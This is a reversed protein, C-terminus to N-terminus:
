TLAGPRVFFEWRFKRADADPRVASLVVSTTSRTLTADVGAEGSAVSNTGVSTAAGNDSGTGANNQAVFRYRFYSTRKNTTNTVTCLAEVCVGENAPIAYTELATTGASSFSSEGVFSRWHERTQGSDQRKIRTSSFDLYHTASSSQLKLVIQAAAQVWVAGNTELARLFLGGNAVQHAIETWTGLIGRVLARVAGGVVFEFPTSDNGVPTGLDARTKGAFHTGPTQGPGGGFTLDRGAGSPSQAPQIRMPADTACLFTTGDSSCTLTKTNATVSTQPEQMRVVQTGNESVITARGLAHDILADRGSNVEIGVNGGKTNLDLTRNPSELAIKGASPTVAMADVGAVQYRVADGEAGVDILVDNGSDLHVDQAGQSAVKAVAAEPGVFATALAAGADNRLLLKSATPSSSILALLSARFREFIHAAGRGGAESPRELHAPTVGLGNDLVVGTSNKTVEFVLVRTGDPTTLQIRWRGAIPDPEVQVNQAVTSDLEATAGDPRDLIEWAYAAAAEAVLDVVIDAWVGRLETNLTGAGAGGSQSITFDAAM